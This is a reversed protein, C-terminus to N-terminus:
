QPNIPHAEDIERNLEVSLKLNNKCLKHFHWWRALCYLGFFFGIGAVSKAASDAVPIILVVISAAGLYVGLAHQTRSEDCKRWQRDLDQKRAELLSM